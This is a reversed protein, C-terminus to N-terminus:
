AEPTVPAPGAPTPAQDGGIMADLSEETIRLYGVVARELEKVLARRQSLAVLDARVLVARAMEAIVVAVLHRRVPVMDPRRYEFVAEIRRELAVQVSQGASALDQSTLRGNLLPVAGPHDRYFRDFGSVIREVLV